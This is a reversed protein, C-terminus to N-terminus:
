TLYFKEVIVSFIFTIKMNFFINSQDVQLSFGKDIIWQMINQILHMLYIYIYINLMKLQNLPGTKKLYQCWM